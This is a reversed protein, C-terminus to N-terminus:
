AEPFFDRGISKYSLSPDFGGDPLYLEEFANESVLIMTVSLPDNSVFMSLLEVNEPLNLMSSVETSTLLMKVKPTAM